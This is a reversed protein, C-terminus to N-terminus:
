SATKIMGTQRDYMGTELSKLSVPILIISSFSMGGKQRGTSCWLLLPISVKSVESVVEKHNQFKRQNM